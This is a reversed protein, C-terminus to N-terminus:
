HSVYHSFLTAYTHIYTTLSIISVMGLILLFLYHNIISSLQFAKIVVDFCKVKM